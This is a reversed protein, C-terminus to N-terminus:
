QINRFYIFYSFLDDFSSTVLKEIAAQFIVISYKIIKVIYNVPKLESISM